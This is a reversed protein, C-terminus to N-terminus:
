SLIIQPTVFALTWVGTRFFWLRQIEERGCTKGKTRLHVLMRCCWVVGGRDFCWDSSGMDMVHAYYWIEVWRVHSESHTQFILISVEYKWFSMPRLDASQAEIRPCEAVASNRSMNSVLRPMVLHSIRDPQFMMTRGKRSMAVLGWDMNHHTGDVGRVQTFHWWNRQWRAKVM